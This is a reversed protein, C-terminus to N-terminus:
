NHELSFDFQLTLLPMTENTSVQKIQTALKKPDSNSTRRGPEHQQEAVTQPSIHSFSLCKIASPAKRHVCLLNGTFSYRTENLLSCGSAYTTAAMRFPSHWICNM